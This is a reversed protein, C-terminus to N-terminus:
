VVPHVLFTEYGEGLLRRFVREADDWNFFIGFVSPGSGSMLAGAAGEGIMVQKAHAALPRLPLIVPEFGNYLLAAIEGGDARELARLMSASSRRKRPLDMQRYAEKTSVGEGKKAVVVIADRTLAPYPTLVEGIGETRCCGSRLCFPVDAGLRRALTNLSDESLAGLMEQMARLVGAADTSGGALGAALPIKKEIEVFADYGDIGAESLYAQAARYAINGEDCPLEPQDCTLTIKGTGEVLRVTVTDCLAIAQMVSDIDHYGDSRLDGVELFLNIKAPCFYTQKM